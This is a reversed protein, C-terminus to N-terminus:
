DGEGEPYLWDIFQGIGCETYCKFHCSTPKWDFFSDTTPDPNPHDKECKYQEQDCDQLCKRTCRAWGEFDNDTSPDPDPYKPFANCWFQVTECYYKGGSDKCRQEYYSCDNTGYLGLPDKLMTPRNNVYVYKNIGGALGIIDESIFREHLKYRTRYYTLGNGDNERGTYQFPNYINSNSTETKGFPDYYYEAAINRSQDTLAITSGLADRLYYYTSDDRTIGFTEDIKLSRLYNTTVTGNEIEQMIDWRDYLYNITKGDITKEIRRGFPDYKFSANFSPSSIATLRNRVDWQYSTDGKSILNGNADYSLSDNNYSLMQNATDYAATLASPLLTKHGSFSERNGNSDYTYALSKLIQSNSSHIINTLRSANDYTYTAVIGNPLTMSSRRGIADYTFTVTKDGQVLSTLRGVADYNYYIPEQGAITAKTRWGLANYEYNIVGYPTIEQMVKDTAGGSCGSSCGTNSYSYEIAGSISDNVTILRGVADYIYDTYANDAYQAKSIRNMKDYIYTTKQNKRDTIFTLNDNLDYSYTETKRLQDTMSAVKDRVNYTYSITQNEADTVYTLNGNKDYTFMTRGNLADIVEKIRNMDDYGYQTTKGKPDTTKIMRSIADYEMRMIESQPNQIKSLNGYSDYEFTTTNNLADTISIPQGFSNYSISIASQQPSIAKILNGKEDYTMTTVNGLADTIKTPKNYTLDYEYTTVNGAPDTISTTNGNADYAYSVKRGLPDTTSLLRNTSTEREYTTKQGYADTMETTYGNGNFRYKTENGNPDRVTVATVTGGSPTTPYYCDCVNINAGSTGQCWSGVYTYGYISRLNTCTYYEQWGNKNESAPDISCNYNTTGSNNCNGGSISYIFDYEGGDAHKQKIVRGSASYTNEVVKVGNPNTISAIRYTSNYAYNTTGGEPNTVSTLKIISDSTDYTYKVKRGLIDKVSSILTYVTRGITMTTNTITLSRGFNDSLGTINGNSDRTITVKNSNRDKEETLRGSSDFLFTRGDNFKLTRTNDSNLYAKAGKLFPYTDNTYSGDDNKSFIYQGGGSSTYTLSSGSGQLYHDYNISTGRGFPGITSSGSNYLRQINLMSSSTFGIDNETYVFMGSFPDVPDGLETPCSDPPTPPPNNSPQRSQFSAGCCFKPIGIGDDPIIQRGDDSVTGMGFEKWQNSDPDPTFSEDYYYLTVRTGPEAQFTNPMKVPIPQSPTGGGRKFFYYM